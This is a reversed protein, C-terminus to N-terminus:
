ESVLLFAAQRAEPKVRPGCTASSKGVIERGNQPDAVNRADLGLLDRERVRDVCEEVGITGIRRAVTASMAALELRRACGQLRDPPLSVSM